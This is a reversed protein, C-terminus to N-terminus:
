MPCALSLINRRLSPSHCLPPPSPPISPPPASCIRALRYTDQVGSTLVQPWMCFSGVMGPHLYLNEGGYTVSPSLVNSHFSCFSLRIDLGNAHYDVYM